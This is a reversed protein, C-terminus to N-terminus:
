RITVGGVHYSPGKIKRHNYTNASDMVTFYDNCCLKRCKDSGKFHKYIHSDKDSHPHDCMELPFIEAKKLLM